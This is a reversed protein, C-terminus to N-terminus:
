VIITNEYKGTRKLEAIVEGIKSDLHTIIAYYDALQQQVVQPTRPWPALAEDRLTMDGNDFPHQAMYSPPLQISAPPYMDRFKQPAQRPDHPAHFAVYMYFPKKDKYNHLYNIASEAFIDTSHPGTEETGTPGREDTPLIARRETKGAANYTLLYADEKAFTGSPDYDWIPMRFHDTLYAGLGMITSGCKFSRALSKTDQHWKGTIFTNYGGNKFAEGLTTHSEPIDHGIGNLEWLQRGTNLMARSPMCTAGSFAGMLYTNTFAVGDHVLADINPTKVMQNGLAHVGTYRMDDAFIFLVNPQVKKKTAAMTGSVLSLAALAAITTRKSINM